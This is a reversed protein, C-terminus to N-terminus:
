ERPALPLQPGGPAWDAAFFAGDVQESLETWGALAESVFRKTECHDCFDTVDIEACALSVMFYRVDGYAWDDDFMGRRERADFRGCVRRWLRRQWDMHNQENVERLFRLRALAIGRQPQVWARGLPTEWQSGSANLNCNSLFRCTLLFRGFAGAANREEWCCTLCSQPCCSWFLFCKINLMLEGNEFIREVWM